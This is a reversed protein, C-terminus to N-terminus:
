AKEILWARIPIGIETWHAKYEMRPGIIPGMDYRLAGEECLWSIQELQMLNGVSLDHWEQAYSFQQGRYVAGGPLCGFIFGIDKEEHRAFIVRGGKEPAIREMLNAYFDQVGPEAMGCHGLGKWSQLEVAIMRAYAARAEARSAPVVREFYVGRDKARTAARGLNRRHNASRRSLFGDLGGELSAASQVGASVLRARLGVPSADLLNRVLPDEPRVGSVLVKPFQPAYEEALFELAEAFLSPGDKGLVPNGFFWYPELPTLFIEDPAFVKEAFAVVSGDREAVLLRRAPSFADHFALQWSPTCCCPDAQDTSLAAKKWADYQEPASHPPLTIFRMREGATDAALLGLGPM